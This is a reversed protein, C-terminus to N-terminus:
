KKVYLRLKTVLARCKEFNDVICIEQNQWPVNEAQPKESKDNNVSKQQVKRRNAQSKKDM